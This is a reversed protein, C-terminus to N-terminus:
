RGRKRIQAKLEKRTVNKMTEQVLGRHSVFSLRDPSIRLRNDFLPAPFRRVQPIGNDHFWKIVEVRGELLAERGKNEHAERLLYAKQERSLDTADRLLRLEPTGTYGPRMFSLAKAFGKDIAVPFYGLRFYINDRDSDPTTDDIGLIGRAYVDYATYEPGGCNDYMSFAPQHPHNRSDLETPEHHVCTAFFAHVDASAAYELYHPNLREVAQEIAHRSFGVKWAHGGFTVTPELRSHFITGADGKTTLLSSFVFFQQNGVFQIFVDNYPLYKKLVEEPIRSYLTSGYHLMFYHDFLSARAALTGGADLLENVDRRYADFGKERVKQYVPRLKPDCVEPDDLDIGKQVEKILSVFEPTGAAEDFIVEPYRSVRAHLHAAKAKYARSIKEKKAEKRRKKEQKRRDAM